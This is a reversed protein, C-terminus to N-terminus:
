TSRRKERAFKNMCDKCYTQLGSNLHTARHFNDASQVRKCSPCNKETVTPEPIYRKVYHEKVIRKACEKCRDGKRSRKHTDGYFEDWACYERCIICVQGDTTARGTSSLPLEKALMWQAYLTGDLLKLRREFMTLDFTLGLGDFIRNVPLYELRYFIVDEAIALIQNDYQGRTRITFIGYESSIQNIRERSVGYDDGISQYTDGALVRQAIAPHQDLQIVRPTNRGTPRLPLGLRKRTERLSVGHERLIGSIYGTSVGNERSLVNLTEGHILRDIIKAHESKPILPTKGRTRLTKAMRQQWSMDPRHGSM